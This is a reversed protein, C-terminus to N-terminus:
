FGFHVDSEAGYKQLEAATQIIGNMSIGYRNFLDNSQRYRTGRESFKIVKMLHLTFLKAKDVTTV